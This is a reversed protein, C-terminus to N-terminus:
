GHEGYPNEEKEKWVADQREPLGGAGWGHFKMIYPSPFLLLCVPENERYEKETGYLRGYICSAQCIGSETRVLYAHGKRGKLWILKKPKMSVIRGPLVKPRRMAVYIGYVILILGSSICIESLMRAERFPLFSLVWAISATIVAYAALYLWQRKRYAVYEPLRYVNLLAEKNLQMKRVPGCESEPNRETKPQWTM